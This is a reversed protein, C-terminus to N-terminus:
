ANASAAEQIKAGVDTLAVQRLWALGLADCLQLATGHSVVAPRIEGVQFQAQALYLYAVALSESPPLRSLVEVSREGHVVAERLQQPTADGSQRVEAGCILALTHGLVLDNGLHEALSCAQKAYSFGEAWREGQFAAAALGHLSYTLQNLYGLSEAEARVAKMETEAMEIQSTRLYTRARVLRLNFAIDIRGAQRAEPLADSVIRLVVDAASELEELRSWAAVSELALDTIKYRRALEFAEQYRPRALQTHGQAELLRARSLLFFVSLRRTSVGIREADALAQAAEDVQRLRAYLDVMQLLGECTSKGDEGAESVGRRLTTIAEAYDSHHRLLTAEAFLARVKASGRPLALSLHRLGARLADSFGLAFLTREQQTLLQSAAKWDEGNVLHLFRERVAEPRHSGSYFEALRLHAAREDAPAVRNLIASKVVQLIELRGQQSRQLIGMRQIEVLRASPIVDADTLISAPIPENSLAVLLLARIEETPLRDVVRGPLTAADAHIEPNSVALQLLLPSGLTSQYVSEFREALGGRRDTLDHAASRDLGGVTLRVSPVKAGELDSVDQGVLYFQHHGGKVLESALAALFKRLNADAVQWDDVVAVLEHSGVARLVLDAVESPVPPRQLQSYYALQRSGLLSLGHSLATAFQRPSSAPRVTFWFPIRGRRVTRIHRSLLATKGMGPAGNVIVISGGERALETLRDLEERRGLFPNPPPPISGALLPVSKTDRQLKSRGQETLRYVLQKRLGDRVTGRRAMLLGETVLQHLPRSMSCPHYGLSKALERQSVGYPTDEPPCHTEVYDLIETPLFSQGGM